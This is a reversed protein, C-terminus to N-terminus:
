PHTQAGSQDAPGSGYFLPEPGLSGVATARQGALTSQPNTVRAKQEAGNLGLYFDLPRGITTDIRQRLNTAVDARQHIMQLSGRISASLREITLVAM